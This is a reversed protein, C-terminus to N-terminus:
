HTLVHAAFSAQGSSFVLIGVLTGAVGVGLAAVIFKHLGPMARAAVLLQLCLKKM